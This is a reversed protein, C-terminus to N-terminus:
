SMMSESAHIVSDLAFMQFYVESFELQLFLCNDLGFLPYVLGAKRFGFCNYEGFPSYYSQVIIAMSWLLSEKLQLYRIVIPM